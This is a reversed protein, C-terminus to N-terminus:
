SQGKKDRATRQKKRFAKREEGTMNQIKGISMGGWMDAKPSKIAGKAASGAKKKAPVKDGEKFGLIDKKMKKVKKEKQYERRDSKHTWIKDSRHQQKTKDIEKVIDTIDVNGGEKYYGTGVDEGIPSTENRDPANTTSLEQLSIDKLEQGESKASLIADTEGPM